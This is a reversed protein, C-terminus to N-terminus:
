EHLEGFKMVTNLVAQWKSNNEALDVHDLGKAGEQLYM